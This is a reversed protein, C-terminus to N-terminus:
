SPAELPLRLAWSAYLARRAEPTLRDRVLWVGAGVLVGYELVELADAPVAPYALRVQEAVPGTVRRVRVILAARGVEGLQARVLEKLRTRALRFEPTLLADEYGIAVAVWDRVTLRELAALFPLAPALLHAM